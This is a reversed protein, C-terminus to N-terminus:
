KRELFPKMINLILEKAVGFGQCFEDSISEVYDADLDYGNELMFEQIKRKSSKRVGYGYDPVKHIVSIYANIIKRLAREDDTTKICNNAIDFEYQKIITDIYEKTANFTLGPVHMFDTLGAEVYCEPIYYEAESTSVGEIDYPINNVDLWVFHGYPACWCIEGRNFATKLMNAFYYCYGDMFLCRIQEYEAETSAKHWAFNYIFQLVQENADSNWQLQKEIWKDRKEKNVLSKM